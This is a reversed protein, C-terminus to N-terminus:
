CIGTLAPIKFSLAQLRHKSFVYDAIVEFLVLV